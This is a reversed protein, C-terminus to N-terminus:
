TLRMAGTARDVSQRPHGRQPKRNRGSFQKQSLEQGDNQADGFPSRCLTSAACFGVLEFRARWYHRWGVFLRCNSAAHRRLLGDNCLANDKPWIAIRRGNQHRFSQENPVEKLHSVRYAHRVKQFTLSVNQYM